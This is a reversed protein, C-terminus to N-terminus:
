TDKIIIKKFDLLRTLINEINNNKCLELMKEIDNFKKIINKLSELKKESQLNGLFEDTYLIQQTAIRILLEQEKENLKLFIKKFM